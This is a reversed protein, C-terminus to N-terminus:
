PLIQLLLKNLDVLDSKRMVCCANEKLNQTSTLQLLWKKVVLKFFFDYPFFLGRCRNKEIEM